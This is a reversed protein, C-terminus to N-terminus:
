TGAVRFAVTPAPRLGLGSRQGKVIERNRVAGAGMCAATTLISLNFLHNQSIFSDFKNLMLDLYYMHFFKHAWNKKEIDISAIGSTLGLPCLKTKSTKGCVNQSIIPQISEIM